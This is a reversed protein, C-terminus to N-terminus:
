LKAEQVATEAEASEPRAPALVALENPHVRYHLPPALRRLEGIRRRTGPCAGM